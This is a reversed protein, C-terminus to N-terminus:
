PWQSSFPSGEGVALISIGSIGTGCGLEIVAAQAQSETHIYIYIYIYIYEIKQARKEVNECPLFLAYRCVEM